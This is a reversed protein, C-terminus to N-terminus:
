RPPTDVVEPESTLMKGGLWVGVLIVVLAVGALAVMRVPFKLRLRELTSLDQFDDFARHDGDTSFLDDDFDPEGAISEDLSAGTPTAAVDGFLDDDLEPLAPGAAPPAQHPKLPHRRQAPSM